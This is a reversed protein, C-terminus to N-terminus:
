KRPLTARLQIVRLRTTGRAVPRSRFNVHHHEAGSAYPRHMEWGHEDRAVRIVADVHADDIDIGQQWWELKRGIPGTYAVADSRLEHTSTGPRDPEGLIGFKTAEGREWARFLQGQSHKGHRNLIAAADDGRYISEAIAGVRHLVIYFYPAILPNCPCGDIVRFNSM